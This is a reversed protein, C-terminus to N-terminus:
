QGKYKYSDVQSILCIIGFPKLQFCKLLTGENVNNQIETQRAPPKHAMDATVWCVMLVGVSCGTGSLRGTVVSWTGETGLDATLDLTPIFGGTM